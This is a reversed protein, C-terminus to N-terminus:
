IKEKRHRVKKTYGYYSTFGGDNELCYEMEEDQWQLILGKPQRTRIDYVIDSLTFFYQNIFSGIGGVEDAVWYDFEIEQKKCFKDVWENAILTHMLYLDDIKMITKNRTDGDSKIILCIYLRVGLLVLMYGLNLM